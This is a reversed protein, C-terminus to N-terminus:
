ARRGGGSALQAAAPMPCCGGKAALKKARRADAVLEPVEDFCCRLCELLREHFRNRSDALSYHVWLGEKRDEVLGSRRLYALHRSATPQPVKLIQVLDAVCMENHTLLHLIRLRTTDAFAKFMESIVDSNAM